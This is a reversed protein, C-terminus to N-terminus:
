YIVWPVATEKQKAPLGFLMQRILTGAHASAMHTFQLRGAVDGMAFIRKNSTRLSADVQIGRDTKVRAEELGLESINPQRGVAVLLHSGSIEQGDDLILSITTDANEKVETAATGEIIHMGESQLKTRLRDVLEPTDRNMMSAAEIVTVQCGLRLHAQAMEMGIPGGGLVLLHQPKDRLAFITENTLYNVSKLGAIPPIFASSGTAIVAYKFKVTQGGGIVTKPGSFRAHAPIVQVGLSEFREISDHPAIGAIVAEVHDKVASFDVAMQGTIGM